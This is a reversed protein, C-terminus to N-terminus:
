KKARKVKRPGRVSLVKDEEAKALILVWLRITRDMSYVPNAARHEIFGLDTLHKDASQENPGTIAILFGSRSMKAQRINQQISAKTAGYLTVMIKAGCCRPFGEITPM